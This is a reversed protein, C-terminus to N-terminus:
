TILFTNRSTSQWRSTTQIRSRAADSRFTRFMLKNNGSPLGNNLSSRWNTFASILFLFLFLFEYPFKREAFIHTQQVVPSLTSWRWWRRWCLILYSNRGRLRQDDDVDDCSLCRSMTSGACVCLVNEIQNLATATAKRENTQIWKTKRM